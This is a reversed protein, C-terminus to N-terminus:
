QDLTGPSEGKSGIVHCLLKKRAARQIYLQARLDALSLIHKFHRMTSSTQRNKPGKFDLYSYM